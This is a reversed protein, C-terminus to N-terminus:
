SLRNWLVEREEDLREAIGAPDDLGEVRAAVESDGVVERLWRAFDGRSHHYRVSEEPVERILTAFADLDYATHGNGGDPSRFHFALAPPLARLAQAAARDHMSAISEETFAAVAEMYTEFAEEPRQHPVFVHVEGRGNGSTAMEHFHDSVQLRRWLEQNEAYVGAREVAAIAARQMPNGTWASLDKEKDAWSIPEPIDLVDDPQHEATARRPLTTAIGREALAGPLARLLDPVGAGAGPHEGYTELNEFISVVPGDIATVEDAYTEVSLGGPLGRGGPPTGSDRSAIEDSLDANRLLTPVGMCLYLRNPSRDGLVRPVGETYAALFGLDGVLAAIENSYIFGTNEFTTPRVHFLDWIADMHQYVQKAFESKDSFLSAISHYYTQALVEANRHRAVQAFLELTDPRWQDLQEILTGSISFAYQHGADLNELVIRVAPEYCRDAVREIVERNIPDFYRDHDIAGGEHGFARSLRLPQHVEFGLIIEHITCVEQPSPPLRPLHAM